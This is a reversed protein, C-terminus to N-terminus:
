KEQEKQEEKFEKTYHYDIGIEGIAIIKNKSNEVYLRKLDDINEGYEM